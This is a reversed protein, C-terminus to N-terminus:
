RLNGPLLPKHRELARTRQRHLTGTEIATYILLSTKPPRPTGSMWRSKTPLIDGIELVRLGARRDVPTTTYM